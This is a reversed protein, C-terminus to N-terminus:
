ILIYIYLRYGTAMPNMAAWSIHLCPPATWYCYRIIVIIHQDLGGWVGGGMKKYIYYYYYYYYCVLYDYYYFILLFFLRCYCFMTINETIDRFTQTLFVFCSGCCCFKLLCTRLVKQVKWWWRGPVCDKPSLLQESLGNLCFCVLLQESLCLCLNCLEWLHVKDQPQLSESKELWLASLGFDM